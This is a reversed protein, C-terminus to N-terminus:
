PGTMRKRTGESKKTRNTYIACCKLNKMGLNMPKCLSVKLMGDSDKTGV